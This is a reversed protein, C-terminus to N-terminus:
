EKWLAIEEKPIHVILLKICYELISEQIFEKLFLDQYIDLPICLYLVREPDKKKLALKYNLTQGLATHFDSINSHGLFSKIEIAIKQGGKQAAIIREAGLDIFFEIEQLKIHLPDHTIKWGDKNLARCVANHFLDRASM